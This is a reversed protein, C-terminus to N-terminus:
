ADKYRMTDGPAHQPREMETEVGGFCNAEVCRLIGQKSQLRPYNGSHGERDVSMCFKLTRKRRVASVRVTRRCHKGKTFRSFLYRFLAAGTVPGGKRGDFHPPLALTRKRGLASM